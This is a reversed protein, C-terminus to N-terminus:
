KIQIIIVFTSYYNDTELLNNHTMSEPCGDDPLNGHSHLGVPQTYVSTVDHQKSVEHCASSLNEADGAM